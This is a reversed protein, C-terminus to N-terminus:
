IIKTINKYYTYLLQKKKLIITNFEIKKIKKLYNISNHSMTYFIFNDM